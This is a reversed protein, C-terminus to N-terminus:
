DSSLPGLDFRMSVSGRSAGHRSAVEERARQEIKNVVFGQREYWTVLDPHADLTVYRCGVRASLRSAFDIMDTVVTKGLGYGQHKRDVALQAIKISGLYKYRVTSPKERSGLVLSDTCITAYAALVGYVFYLYTTTLRERQDDWAREYLFANQAHRQCDFGPPPADKLKRPKVTM